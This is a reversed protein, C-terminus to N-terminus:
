LDNIYNLKKNRVHVCIIQQYTDHRGTVSIISYQIKRTM